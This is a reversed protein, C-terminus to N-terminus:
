KKLFTRYQSPSITESETFLKSFYSVNNFGCDLAIDTITKDSNVLLDKAKAIKQANKYEIVTLNTARKFAHCMYYQSIGLKESIDKLSLDSSLNDEIIDKIKDVIPLEKTSFNNVSRIISIIELIIKEKNATNNELKKILTDLKENDLRPMNICNIQYHHFIIRIIDSTNKNALYSALGEDSFKYIENYLNQHDNVCKGLKSIVFKLKSNPSVLKGNIIDEETIKAILIERADAYVTDLAHRFSGRERDYTLYIYGDEHEVADPYSVNDREDLLLKYPWTKGDDESLMATLNNRGNFDYHNILLIRGSKLRKIHFRSNPGKLGSDEGKTWTKGRDYSYAVGIGYLTRVFMAIRGDKLEIVMHEDCSRNPVAVGGLKTFTAGNDISKYVFARRDNDTTAYIPNMEDLLTSWVTIPFLWEGTSLVIPKNMMVDNGIKIVDNWVLDEADPDDCIAAYVGNEPAFSWIFWLRGLPDIWLCPDFCRYDEKFAVAVPEEFHVGDDSKILLAYNNIQERTGGSYFTVFIRGKKTIEIGPIGQWIRHDTYYQRLEEKNTILM